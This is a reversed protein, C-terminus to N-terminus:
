RPAVELDVAREAASDAEVEVRSRTQDSNELFPDDADRRGALLAYRGRPLGEFRFKGEADVRRELVFDPALDKADIPVIQVVIRRDVADAALARGRISAGKALAIDGVQADIGDETKIGRRIRPAFGDRAVSLEHLGQHAHEVSFM